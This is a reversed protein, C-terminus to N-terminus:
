TPVHVAKTQSMQWGPSTEGTMAMLEMHNTSLIMVTSEAAKAMVAIAARLTSSAMSEPSMGCTTINQRVAAVNISPTKRKNIKDQPRVRNCARYMKGAKAVVCPM